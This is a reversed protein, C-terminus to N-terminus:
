ALAGAERLQANVKKLMEVQARLHEVESIKAAAQGTGFCKEMEELLADPRLHAYIMTTQIDAHGMVEKLRYLDGGRLVRWSAFTHRLSHFNIKEPLRALRRTIASAGPSTNMM